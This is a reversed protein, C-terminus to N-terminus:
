AIDMRCSYRNKNPWGVSVSLKVSHVASAEKLKQDSPCLSYGACIEIVPNNAASTLIHQVLVRM